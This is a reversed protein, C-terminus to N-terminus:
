IVPKEKLPLQNEDEKQPIVSKEEQLEDFTMQQRQGNIYAEGAAIAANVVKLQEDDLIVVGSEGSDPKDIRFVPSKESHESGLESYIRNYFVQASRTDNKTRTVLIKKPIIQSHQSADISMLSCVIPSLAQLNENFAVTPLEVSEDKRRTWDGDGNLFEHVHVIKKKKREISVFKM